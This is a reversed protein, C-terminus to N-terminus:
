PATRACRFGVGSGRAYPPGSYRYAARVYQSDHMNIDSGRVVLSPLSTNQCCNDCPVIYNDYGDLNWEWVNGGLDSHGWKGNGAPTTGVSVPTCVGASCNYAAKGDDIFNSDPPSSWPYIRQESGGSAAYMWEAETPLFGGDWLCFAFADYWNVNNIPRNDNTTSVDDEPWTQAGGIKLRTASKFEAANAPLCPKADDWCVDNNWGGHWGGDDPVHPHNGEGSTPHGQTGHWTDYADVFKKFRGVTVEYKDLYYDSITAADAPSCPTFSNNADTRSADCTRYFKEGECVSGVANGPVLLSRCCSENSNVGCTAALGGCSPGEPGDGQEGGPCTTGGGSSGTTGSQGGSGGQGGTAATGGPGTGGSGGVTAGGSHSGGARQESSNGSSCALALVVASSWIWPRFSIFHLAVAMGKKRNCYVRGLRCTFALNAEIKWM